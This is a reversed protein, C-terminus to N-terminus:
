SFNTYKLLFISEEIKQKNIYNKLTEGTIKKYQISLYNSSMCVIKALDNLSIKKHLNQNIYEHITHIWLPYERNNIKKSLVCFDILCNSFCSVLEQFTQCKDIIRIYADSIGYSKELSAGLQISQRTIIAIASVLKYKTSQIPSDCLKESENEFLRLCIMRATISDGLKIAKMLNVEEEYTYIKQDYDRKTLILKETEIQECLTKNQHTITRIDEISLNDDNLLQYYVCIHKFSNTDFITTKNQIENPTTKEPIYNLFTINKINEKISISTFLLPGLCITKVVPDNHYNIFFYIEAKTLFIDIKGNLLNNSNYIYNFLQSPLNFFDYSQMVINHNKDLLLIPINTTNYFYNLTNKVTKIELM